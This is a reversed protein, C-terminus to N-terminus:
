RHQRQAAAIEPKSLPYVSLSPATGQRSPLLPDLMSPPMVSGASHIMDTLYQGIILHYPTFTSPPLHRVLSGEPGPLWHLMTWNLVETPSWTYARANLEADRPSFPSRPRETGGSRPEHEDEEPISGHVYSGEM